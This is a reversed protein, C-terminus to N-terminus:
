RSPAAFATRCAQLARDLYVKLPGQAGGDLWAHVASSTCAMLSALMAQLGVDNAPVGTRESVVELLGDFFQEMMDRRQTKLLTANEASLRCILDSQRRDVADDGLSMMVAILSEAIPEDLPREALRERVMQLKVETNPFLVSEKTPFYRFFTRPAVDARAAIDDVTTAHFGKEEFLAYAAELISQRTRDLHKKRLSLENGTM